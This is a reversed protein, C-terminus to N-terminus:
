AIVVVQEKPITPVAFGLWSWIIPCQETFISSHEITNTDIGTDMRNQFDFLEGLIYGTDSCDYLYFQIGPKPTSTSNNPNPNPNSQIYNTYHKACLAVSERFGSLYLPHTETDGLWVSAILELILDPSDTQPNKMDTSRWVYMALAKHGVEDMLVHVWVNKKLMAALGAYEPTILLSKPRVTRTQLTRFVHQIQQINAEQIRFSRPLIQFSPNWDKQTTQTNQTNQTKQTKNGNKQFVKGLRDLTTGYATTRWAPVIGLAKWSSGGYGGERKFLHIHYQRTQKDRMMRVISTYCLKSFMGKGRSDRRICLNDIYMVRLAKWEHLVSLDTVDTVSQGSTRGSNRGSNRGVPRYRVRLPHFTIVGLLPRVGRTSPLRDGYVVGVRSDPHALTSCFSTPKPSYVLDTTMTSYSSYQKSLLSLIDKVTDPHTELATDGNLVRYKVYDEQVWDSYPPIRTHEKSTYDFSLVGPPVWWWGRLLNYVHFAPLRSWVPHTIRVYAVLLLYVISYAICLILGIKAFTYIGTSLSSETGSVICWRVPICLVWLVPYITEWVTTMNM